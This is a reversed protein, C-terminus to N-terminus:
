LVELVSEPPRGIRAGKETIVIPREILRPHEVLADLLAAESARNDLGLEKFLAEKTRVVDIAKGGLLQVVERLRKKTPPTDLYRVVTPTVGHEQLLALTQRSKTCQPNHWIEVM